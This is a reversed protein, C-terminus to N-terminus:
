VGQDAYWMEKKTTRARQRLDEGDAAKRNRLEWLNRRFIRGHPGHAFGFLEYVEAETIYKGMLLYELPTHWGRASIGKVMGYRDFKIKDWPPMVGDHVACVYVPESGGRSCRLGRMGRLSWMNYSFRRGPLRNLKRLFENMHLSHGPRDSELTEADRIRYHAVRRKNLFNRQESALRARYSVKANSMDPMSELLLKQEIEQDILQDVSLEPSIVRPAKSDYEPIM